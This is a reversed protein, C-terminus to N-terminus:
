EHHPTNPASSHHSYAHSKVYTIVKSPINSILLHPLAIVAAVAIIFGVSSENETKETKQKNM